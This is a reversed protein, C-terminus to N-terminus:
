SEVVEADIVFAGPRLPPLARPARLDANPDDRFEWWHRAEGIAQYLLWGAPVTLVLVVLVTNM